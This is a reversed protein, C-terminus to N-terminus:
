TMGRPASRRTMAHRWTRPLRVAPSWHREAARLGCLTRLAGSRSMTKAATVEAAALDVLDGCDVIHRDMLTAVMPFFADRGRSKPRPLPLDGFCFLALPFDGLAMRIV